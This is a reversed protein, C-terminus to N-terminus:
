EGVSKRQGLNPLLNLEVDFPTPISRLKYSRSECRLFVDYKDM